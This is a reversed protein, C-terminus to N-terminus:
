NLSQRLSSLQSAISGDIIRDGVRIIMGGLITPDVKFSIKAQQDLNQLIDSKVHEQEDENLPLATVIEADAGSIMEGELVVVKGGKVGSFFEDLLSRQWKEDNSLSDGILKQAGAISLTVVQNRLNGLIISREQELELKANERNRAIEADTSAKIERAVAEARDSAERVIETAKEQAETIIRNAEDEAHERAEAAVRADEMGKAITIRRKELMGLLPKIVWENIVIIAIAFMLIQVILYGLSM